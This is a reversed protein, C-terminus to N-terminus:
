DRVHVQEVSPSLQWNQLMGGITLSSAFWLSVDSTADYPFARQLVQKEPSVHRTNIAKAIRQPLITGRPFFCWLPRGCQVHQEIFLQLGIPSDDLVVLVLDAKTLIGTIEIKPISELQEKLDLSHGDLKPDTHDILFISKM